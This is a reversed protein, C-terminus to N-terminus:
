KDGLLGRVPVLGHGGDGVLEDSGVHLNVSILKFLQGCLASLLGFGLLSALLFQLGLPIHQM